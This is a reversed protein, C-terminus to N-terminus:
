LRRAWKEEWLTQIEQKMSARSADLDPYDPNVVEIPTLRDFRTERALEPVIRFREGKYSVSISEGRRARTLMEFIQKRFTTVPVEM